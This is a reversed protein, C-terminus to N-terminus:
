SSKVPTIEILHLLDLGKLATQLETYMKDLEKAKAENQAELSSISRKQEKAWNDVATEYKDAKEEKKEVAVERDALEKNKQEQKIATAAIQAKEQELAQEKDKIEKYAEHYLSTSKKGKDMFPRVIDYGRDLCLQELYEKESQEWQLQATNGMKSTKFGMANLAREMGHQRTMGKKCSDSFPVYDIHLHVQGEEDAHYYAGILALNPNRESWKNYFELLIERQTDEDMDEIVQRKSDKQNYVGVVAEYVPQRELVIDEYKPNGDADKGVKKRRKGFSKSNAIHEYYDDIRRDNRTQKANYEELADGFIRAYAEHVEEDHWIEYHGNPDIHKANEVYRLDRTNHERSYTPRSRFGTSVAM